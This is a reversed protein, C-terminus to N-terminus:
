CGRGTLPPLPETGTRRRRRSRVQMGLMCGDVSLVVAAPAHDTPAGESRSDAHYQSLAQSYSAAAEGLRQVVRWICMPSVTVGLLLGALRAALTYSPVVTGLLALLRALSGSIRGPEVGL